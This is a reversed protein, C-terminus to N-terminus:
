ARSAPVVLNTWEVEARRISEMESSSLDYTEFSIAWDGADSVFHAIGVFAQDDSEAENYERERGFYVEFVKQDPRVNIYPLRTFQDLPVQAEVPPAYRLGVIGGARDRLWDYFGTSQTEPIEHYWTGGVSWTRAPRTELLALTIAGRFVVVLFEGTPIAGM